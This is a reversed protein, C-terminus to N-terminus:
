TIHPCFPKTDPKETWPLCSSRINEALSQLTELNGELGAWLVQPRKLNPFVGLGTIQLRLRKTQYPLDTLAAEIIPIELQPVSGLFCLTLHRKEPPVPRLDRLNWTSEAELLSQLSTPPPFIGVFLRATEVEPKM